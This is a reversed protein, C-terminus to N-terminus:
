FIECYDRFDVFRVHGDDNVVGSSIRGADAEMMFRSFAFLTGKARGCKQSILALYQSDSPYWRCRSYMSKSLVDKYLTGVENSSGEYRSKSQARTLKFNADILSLASGEFPLVLVGLTFFGQLILFVRSWFARCHTVEKERM